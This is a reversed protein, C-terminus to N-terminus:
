AEPGIYPAANSLIAMCPVNGHLLAQWITSRMPQEVYSLAHVSCYHLGYTSLLNPDRPRM